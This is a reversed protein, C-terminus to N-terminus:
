IRISPHLLVADAGDVIYINFHGNVEGKRYECKFGSIFSSALETKPFFLTRESCIIETAFFGSKEARCDGSM